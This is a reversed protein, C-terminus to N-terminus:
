FDETSIGPAFEESVEESDPVPGTHEPIGEIVEIPLGDGESRM